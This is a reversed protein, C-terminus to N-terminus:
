DTVVHRDAVAVIRLALAGCTPCRLVTGAGRYARYEGMASVTGCSRCARAVTTMEACFVETLLGAMANGDLWLAPETM